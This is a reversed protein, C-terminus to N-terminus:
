YKTEIKTRLSKGKLEIRHSKPVVRDLIADAITPEGIWEHWKSVPLQSSIITAGNGYRDELIQLLILKVDHSLPKLGFDDFVILKAQKLRNMWRIITGDLKALGIQETFRNMNFYMSRLGFQCAQHVLACGLYSKGSGTAGTILINEARNIYSCDALSMLQGKSLNRKESCHIDQICAQFRMKSLRLYLKTKKDSRYQKEADLMIAIMEHSDPQKDIPLEIATQYSAAMGSLKMSNMLELNQNKM